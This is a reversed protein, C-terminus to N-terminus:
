SGCRRPARTRPSGRAISTSASSRSRRPATRERRSSSGPAGRLRVEYDGPPLDRGTVSAAGRGDLRAAQRVFDAGNAKIELVADSGGAFPDLALLHVEDRGERYLAKDSTVAALSLAPLAPPSMTAGPLLVPQRDFPSMVLPRPARGGGLMRQIWGMGPKQLAKASAFAFARGLLIDGGLSRALADDTITVAKPSLGSATVAAGCFNCSTDRDQLMWGCQSCPKM